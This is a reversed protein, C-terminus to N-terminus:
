ELEGTIVGKASKTIATRIVSIDNALEEMTVTDSHYVSLMLLYSLCVAFFSWPGYLTAYFLMELRFKMTTM